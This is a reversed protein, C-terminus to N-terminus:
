GRGGGSAKIHVECDPGTLTGRDTRLRCTGGTPRLEIVTAGDSSSAARVGGPGPEAQWASALLELLRDFREPPLEAFDSLLVTGDTHLLTWAEALQATQARAAARARAQQEAVNPVKGTRGTATERGATRLLPSVTVRAAAWPHNPGATEPDDLALHAHRASGLAFAAHALRHAEAESDVATFWRALATFDGAASAARRRERDLRELARLLTRIAERALRDLRSVRAETGCFWSRLGSWRLRRQETWQERREDGTGPPLNAGILARKHLVEIGDAEVREVAAAIRRTKQPLDACFEELYTVTALKVETFTAADVQTPGILRQLSGNFGTVNDALSKLHRELEEVTTHVATDASSPSSALRHLEDLKDAIADLVSTQLAGVANLAEWAAEIGALAAEGKQTLSYTLHNREYDAASTYSGSRDQVSEVLGWAHEFQELRADLEADGIEDHWGVEPLRSRIAQRSLGAELAAAARGFVQLLATHLEGHPESVTLAFLNRPLRLRM